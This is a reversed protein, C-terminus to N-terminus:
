WDREGPDAWRPGKDAWQRAAPIRAVAASKAGGGGALKVRVARGRPIVGRAVVVGGVEVVLGGSTRATTRRSWGRGSATPSEWKHQYYLARVFARGWRTKAEGGRITDRALPFMGLSNAYRIHSLDPDALRTAAWKGPNAYARALLQRAESDM